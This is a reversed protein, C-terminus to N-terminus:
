SLNGLRGRLHEPIEIPKDDDKVDQKAASEDGNDIYKNNDDDNTRNPSISRRRSRRYGDDNGDYRGRRGRRRHQSDYKSDEDYRYGRRSSLPPVKSGLRDLISLPKNSTSRQQKSDPEGHLLYYRSRERSGRTKIDNDTAMRIYLTDIKPLVPPRILPVADNDATTNSDNDHTPREFPKAKSLDTSSLSGETNLPPQALLKHAADNANSEDEYVLVCSSDDIWEIKKLTTDKCYTQIDETSMSELGYLFLANPRTFRQAYYNEDTENIPMTSTTTSDIKETTQRDNIGLEADPMDIDMGVDKSADM